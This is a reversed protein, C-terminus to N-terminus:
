EEYGSSALCKSVERLWDIELRYRDVDHRRLLRQLETGMDELMSLESERARLQAELYDLRAGLAALAEQPALSAGLSLGLSIQSSLPAESAILDYLLDRLREQGKSTLSYVRREPMNGARDARAELFGNRELRELAKYVAVKSIPMWRCLGSLEIERHLEYGHMDREALLGLTPIEASANM